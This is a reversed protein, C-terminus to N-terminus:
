SVGSQVRQLVYAVCIGGIGLLTLGVSGRKMPPSLALALRSSSFFRSLTLGRGCSGIGGHGVFFVFIARNTGAAFCGLVCPIRKLM